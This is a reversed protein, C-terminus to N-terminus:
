SENGKVQNIECDALGDIFRLRIKDGVSIDLVSRVVQTGKEAISYGRGLVRLPSLADLSAAMKSLTHRKDRLLQFYAHQLRHEAQALRLEIPELLRGPYAFFQRNQVALLRSKYASLQKQLSLRLRGEYGALSAQLQASDPSALEAAASPTPARLDAVFDCITFDTEHGVASIVPVPSAYIARALTEDNFAWLDEASGAGRGILILDLDTRKSLQRLARTLEAAAGAGQVLVPFLLIEAIPWRRALIKLIDQLAAGTESTVVAIKEPYPPLPRKHMPSFLGEAELKQKLAEFAAALSGAGDPKLDEVYFQYQGDKEYLSIRGRCVVRMGERPLFTLRMANGRFMVARVLAGDDKLSFYLHGSGYHNKFNSIEGVVRVNALHVDGELLSRVYFNLQGVSLVQPM